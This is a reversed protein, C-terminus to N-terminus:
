SGKSWVFTFLSALLLALGIMTTDLQRESVFIAAPRWPVATPPIIAIVFCTIGLACGLIVLLSIVDFPDSAKTNPRRVFGVSTGLTAQAKM